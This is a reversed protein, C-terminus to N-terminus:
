RRIRLIKVVTGAALLLLFVKWFEVKSAGFVWETFEASFILPWALTVVGAAVLSTGFFAFLGVGLAAVMTLIALLTGVVGLTRVHALRVGPQEVDHDPPMVEVDM